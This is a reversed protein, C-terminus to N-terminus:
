RCRSLGTVFIAETWLAFKRSPELQFLGDLRWADNPIPQVFKTQARSPLTPWLTSCRHQMCVALNDLPVHLPVEQAGHEAFSGSAARLARRDVIPYMM